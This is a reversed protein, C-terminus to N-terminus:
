FEFDDPAPRTGYQQQSETRRQRDVQINMANIETAYRRNGDADTWQRNQIKGEVLVATGKKVYKEVVEATKAWAIINIWETKDQYQGGSDKYRETVGVRFAAAKKGGGDRIEPDAACNGAIIAKNLYM